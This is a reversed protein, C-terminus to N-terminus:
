THQHYKAQRKVAYFGEYYPYRWKPNRVPDRVVPIPYKDGDAPVYDRMSERWNAIQKASYLRYRLYTKPVYGGPIGGMKMHYDVLGPFLDHMYKSEELLIPVRDQYSGIGGTTYHEQLCYTFKDLLTTGYKFLQWCVMWEDDELLAYRLSCKRMAVCNGVVMRREAWRKSRFYYNEYNAFGCYSAGICEAHDIMEAFIRMLMDATVPTRYIRRWEKGPIDSTAFDFAEESHLPYPVAQFGTINDNMLVIWEGSEVLNDLIWNHQNAKGYRGSPVGSVVMRASPVVGADRYKNYWEESHVVVTYDLDELVSPTSITDPRAYSCVYIHPSTIM